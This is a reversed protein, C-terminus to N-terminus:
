DLYPPFGTAGDDRPRKDLLWFTRYSPSANLAALTSDPVQHPTALAFPAGAGLDPPLQGRDVTVEVLLQGGAGDIVRHEKVADIDLTARAGGAFLMVFKAPDQSRALAGVLTITNDAPAVPADSLLASFSKKEDTM